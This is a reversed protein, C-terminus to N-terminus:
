RRSYKACNAVLARAAEASLYLHGYSAMAGHSTIGDMGDLIGVGVQLRQAFAADGAVESARSYHFEHGRFAVERDSIPSRDMIGRTYNLTVSGTMKTEMDFIGAMRHRKGDRVLGRAMYMLGGCEAYAPMGGAVAERMGGMLSRNKELLAARVEPFGGGIYLGDADPMEGATEPSFFIVEGGAERIRAINDRYYFNFSGDLAVGLRARTPSARAAEYRPLPGAQGAVELIGDMDLHELVRDAEAVIKGALRTDEAPPVLGLHRSGFGGKGRPVAGLVRVGLPGLAERCTAAHRESGVRNLIVGRVMCNRSFRLFGLVTAAVSRGGGGADVVLIAPTRTMEAIHHTSARNSGGEFGDYYGMVGEIVAAAGGSNRSLSEIVGSRGMLWADLNAVERGAAVALYGPDIYDPGAKFPQVVHGARRFGRILACTM